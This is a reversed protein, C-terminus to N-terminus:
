QIFQSQYYQPTGSDWLPAYDYKAKSVDTTVFCTEMASNAIITHSSSTHPVSASNLSGSDPLLHFLTISDTSTAINPIISHVSLIGVTIIQLNKATFIGNWYKISAINLTTALTPQHTFSSGTIGFTFNNTTTGSANRDFAIAALAANSITFAIIIAFLIHRKMTIKM